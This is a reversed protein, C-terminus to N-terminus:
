RGVGGSIGGYAGSFRRGEDSSGACAALTAALGLILATRAFGRRV